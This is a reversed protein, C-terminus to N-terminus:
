KRRFLPRSQPRLRGIWAFRFLGPSLGLRFRVNRSPLRASLDPSCGLLISKYSYELRARDAASVDVVVDKRMGGSVRVSTGRPFGGRENKAFAPHPPRRSQGQCRGNGDACLALWQIGHM